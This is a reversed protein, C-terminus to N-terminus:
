GPHASLVSLKSRGLSLFVFAVELRMIVVVFFLSNMIMLFIVCYWSKLNIGLIIRILLIFMGYMLPYFDEVVHFKIRVLFTSPTM